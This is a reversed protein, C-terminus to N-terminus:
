LPVSTGLTISLFALAFAAYGVRHVAEQLGICQSGGKGGECPKSFFGFFVQVGHFIFQDILKYLAFVFDDIIDFGLKLLCCQALGASNSRELNYENTHRSYDPALLGHRIFNPM